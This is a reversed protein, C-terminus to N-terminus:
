VILQPASSLCVFTSIITFATFAFFCLRDMVMAAYKWDQVITELEDNKRMRNTIYKLERLCSAIDKGVECRGGGSGDMDQGTSHAAPCTSHRIPSDISVSGVQNAIAHALLPDSNCTINHTNCHEKCTSGYVGSGVQSTNYHHSMHPPVNLGLPPPLMAQLGHRQCMNSVLFNNPLNPLNPSYCNCSDGIGMDNHGSGRLTHLQLYDEELDLVNAMLDGKLHQQQDGFNKMAANVLSINAQQGSKRTVTAAPSREENSDCLSLKDEDEEEDKNKRQM